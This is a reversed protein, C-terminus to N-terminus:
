GTTLLLCHSFRRALDRNTVLLVVTHRLHFACQLVARTPLRAAPAAYRMAQNPPDVSGAGGDQARLM